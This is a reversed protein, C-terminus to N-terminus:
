AHAGIERLRVEIRPRGGKEAYVKRARLDVVQADDRMVCAMGDVVAKILNDLDPRVDAWMLGDPDCRRRSAVPRRLVFLLDVRLPGDAVRGRMHARAVTAVDREYARTQDPTRARGREVRPRAKPVPARPITFAIDITPM